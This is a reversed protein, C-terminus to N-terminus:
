KKFVFDPVAEIHGSEHLMGPSRLHFDQSIYVLNAPFIVDAPERVASGQQSCDPMATVDWPIIVQIDTHHALIIDKKIGYCLLFQWFSVINGMFSSGIVPCQCCNVVTRFHRDTFFMQLFEM